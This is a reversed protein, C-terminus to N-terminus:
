IKKFRGRLVDDDVSIRNNHGSDSTSLRIPEVDAHFVLSLQRTKRTKKSVFFFFEFYDHMTGKEWIDTANGVTSSVVNPSATRWNRWSSWTKTADCCDPRSRKCRTRVRSWVAHLWDAMPWSFPCCGPLVLNFKMYKYYDQYKINSNARKLRTFTLSLSIGIRTFHNSSTRCSIRHHGTMRSVQIVVQIMVLALSRGTHRRWRRGDVIVASRKWHHHVASTFQVLLLLRVMQVLLIAAADTRNMVAIQDFRLM